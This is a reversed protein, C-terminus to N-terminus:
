RNVRGCLLRLNIESGVAQAGFGKSLPRTADTETWRFEGLSHLRTAWTQGIVIPPGCRSKSIHSIFFRLWRTRTRELEPNQLKGPRFIWVQPVWREHNTSFHAVRRMMLSQGASLHYATQM